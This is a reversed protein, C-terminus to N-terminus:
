KRNWISFGQHTQQYSAESRKMLHSNGLLVQTKVRRIMNGRERGLASQGGPWLNLGWNFHPRMLDKQALLRGLHWSQSSVISELCGNQNVPTRLTAMKVNFPFQNTNLKMQHAQSRKKWRQHGIHRNCVNLLWERARIPDPLFKMEAM